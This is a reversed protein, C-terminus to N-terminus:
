HCEVESVMSVVNSALAELSPDEIFYVPTVYFLIVSEFDVNCFWAVAGIEAVKVEQTTQLPPLGIVLEKFVGYTHKVGEHGGIAYSEDQSLSRVDVEVGYQERAFDEAYGDLRDFAASYASIPASVTRITAIVVLAKGNTYTVEYISPLARYTGEDIVFSYGDLPKAPSVPYAFFGVYLLAVVSYIVVYAAAKKALANM